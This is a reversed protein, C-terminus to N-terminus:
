CTEDAEAAIPKLETEAFKRYLEQQLSLENSLKFNVMQIGGTKFYYNLAVSINTVLDKLSTFFINYICFLM